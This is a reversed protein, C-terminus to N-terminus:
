SSIVQVSVGRKENPVSKLPHKALREALECSANIMELTM